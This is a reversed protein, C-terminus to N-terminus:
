KAPGEVEVAVSYGLLRLAAASSEIAERLADAAEARNGGM